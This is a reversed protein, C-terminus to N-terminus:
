TRLTADFKEKMRAVVRDVDAQVEEATLTRTPDRFTLRMALSRHGPPIPKGEYIDVLRLSELRQGASERLTHEVEAYVTDMKLVFALDRVVAPTRALHRYATAVAYSPALTALELEFGFLKFPTKGLPIVNADIQGVHGITTSGSRIVACSEATFGPHEAHAFETNHVGAIELVDELIGKVDYFSVARNAGAWDRDNLVGGAVAALTITEHAGLDKSREVDGPVNFVKDHEYVRASDAGRRANREITRVLAPLLSTRMAAFERSMPNKLKVTPVGAGAAAEAQEPTEMAPSRCELFGVSSLYTALDQRLADITSRKGTTPVQATPRMPLTDYGVLRAVDEILVVPDIADVRWTPVGVNLVGVGVTAPAPEVTMELKELSTRITKADVEIGLYHSVRSASLPFVTRERRKPYADVAGGAPSGGGLEAILSCARNMAGELTRNPDVGREFRFSSETSVEIRKATRRITPPDFNASEVLVQTTSDRTESTKGGMIGALAVPGEADCIALTPPPNPGSGADIAKGGLLELKEDSRLRRVVIKKGRVQAFDFAHLPQGWEFMVFNTVDVVNNIARQGISELVDVMWKPSPGVKVGTMVRGMYRPCLDPDLIEVSVPSAGSASTVRVDFTPYKLKLNLHAAVERAIGIIGLCDPRNALVNLDVLFGQGSGLPEHEEIELGMKPFAEILVDHSVHPELYNLLWPTTIKM